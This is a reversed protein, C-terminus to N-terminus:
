HAFTLGNPMNATGFSTVELTQLDVRSLHDDSANCVFASRRDPAIHVAIPDKGTAFTAIPKGSAVDIVLVKQDLPAPAFIRAGDPTMTSYLILGVGLDTIRRTVTLDTPNLFLLENKGSALLQSGDTTWTLGRIASASTYRAKIAGSAPEVRFVGNNAAMLFLSQGDPSFIFNHTEEPVPFQRLLQGSTPNFVLMVDGVEVNVFLEDSGPRLKVGHPAKHPLTSLRRVETFTSLDVVSVSDGPIGVARDKDSLGFNSVYALRGDPSLAVEHPDTGIKVSGRTAGTGPDIMSVRGAGQEVVVLGASKTPADRAVIGINAITGGKTMTPVACIYLVVGAEPARSEALPRGLYDTITGILMGKAVYTGRKVMPTFIGNVDSTVSAIKEIWVPSKIPTPAGELM